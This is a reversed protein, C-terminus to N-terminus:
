AGRCSCNSSSSSSSTTTHLSRAPHHHHSPTLSVDGFPQEIEIAMQELALFLFAIVGIAPIAIWGYEGILVLPLTILWLVLFSRLTSVYGFTMPTSKIRECAGVSAVLDRTLATSEIFIAANIQSEDGPTEDDDEPLNGRVARSIMHVCALPPCPAANIAQVCRMNMRGSLEKESISEDRLWAKLAVVFLVLLMFVQLLRM